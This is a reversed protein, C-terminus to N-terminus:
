PRRSLWISDFGKFQTCVFSEDFFEYRGYDILQDNMSSLGLSLTLSTDEWSLLALALRWLMWRMGCELRMGYFTDM